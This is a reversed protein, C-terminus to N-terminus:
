KKSRVASANPKAAKENKLHSPKVPAVPEANEVQKKKPFNDMAVTMLRVNALPVCVACVNGGDMTVWVLGDILDLRIGGCDGDKVTKFEGLGWLCVSQYFVATILKM